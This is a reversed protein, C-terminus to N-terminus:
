AGKKWNGNLKKLEKFLGRRHGLGYVVLIKKDTSSNVIEALVSNRYNIILDQTQRFSALNQVRGDIPTEFDIENLIIEGYKSEFYEVLQLTTIDARIDLSDIGLDSNAPQPDLSELITGETASNYFEVSARFGFIRRVKRELSDLSLSDLGKPPTVIEYYVIYGKNKFTIIEQKLSEYYEPKGLHHTGIFAMIKDDNSYFKYSAETKPLENM